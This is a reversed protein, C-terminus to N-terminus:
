LMFILLASGQCQCREIPYSFYHTADLYYHPTTIHRHSDHQGMKCCCFCHCGHPTKQHHYPGCGEVCSRFHVFGPMVTDLDIVCFGRNNEDFLVNNIKTDNHTVRIPINREEGLNHIQMMSDARELLFDVLM